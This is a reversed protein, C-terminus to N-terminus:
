PVSVARGGRVAPLMETQLGLLDENGPMVRLGAGVAVQLLSHDDNELAWVGVRHAIDTAQIILRTTTGDLDAWSYTTGAFPVDRIRSLERALADSPAGTRLFERTERALIDADTTVQTSLIIEDSFTTPCWSTPDVRPDLDSLSRRMDSVVTSFTSDNIDTDWIANRAASRRSRDRNLVLWTLLELARKKRFQAADGGRGEAVPYGYLRIVVSWENVVSETVEPYLTETKEVGHLLRRVDEDVIIGDSAFCDDDSWSTPGAVEKLRWLTTAEEGALRAPQQGGRLTIAQERRRRLIHRLVASAVAPSLLTGVPVTATSQGASNLGVPAPALACSAVLWACVRRFPGSPVKSGGRRVFQTAIERGMLLSMFVIFVHVLLAIEVATLRSDHWQPTRLARPLEVSVCAVSWGLSVVVCVSLVLLIVKKM